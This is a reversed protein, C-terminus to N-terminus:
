ILPCSRIVCFGFRNYVPNSDHLISHSPRIAHQCWFPSSMSISSLSLGNNKNIHYSSWSSHHANFDGCIIFPTTSAFDFLDVFPDEPSNGQSFFILILLNRVRFVPLQSYCCAISQLNSSKPNLELLHFNISKRILIAM